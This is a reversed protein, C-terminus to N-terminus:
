ERAAFEQRVHSGEEQTAHGNSDWGNETGHFDPMTAHGDANIGERTFVAKVTMLLIKLDLWVSWNDVYWVDLEFRKEWSLTNRGNVQAWGTIGPLVEHRRMQTQTYLDLYKMLLPRPGVISMNGKIVNLLEPLEDISTSRLFEGLKTLRDEDPLPDGHDDRMDLMTRFKLMKFPKGHLGPRIQSFIVPPGMSILISLSAFVWLPSTIILGLLAIIIDFFRKVSCTHM